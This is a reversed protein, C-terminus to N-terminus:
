MISIKDCGKTQPTKIQCLNLDVGIDKFFQIIRPHVTKKNGKVTVIASMNDTKLIDTVGGLRRFTEITCRIFDEETKSFSLLFVHERSYGLTASFVNFEVLTGDRLHISLNEKWDAQIQKGPPTEYLPHPTVSVKCRIDKRRLYDCFGSYTGKIESHGNKLFNYVARKNAGGLNMKEKIVEEYEDWESCKPRGKRPCIGKNKHIKAVTHRDIGYLRALQSYNPKIGFDDMAKLHGPLNTLTLENM